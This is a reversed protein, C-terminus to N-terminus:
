LPLKPTSASVTNRIIVVTVLAEGRLERYCDVVYSVALSGAAPCVFGIMGMGFVLAVWSLEHAYGVGFLLLGLPTIILGVAYCWLRFEPEMVGSNRRTLYISLKDALKGACFGALYTGIIEALYTLGM